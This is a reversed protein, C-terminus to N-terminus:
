EPPLPLGALALKLLTENPKVDPDRYFRKPQNKGALQEDIKAKQSKTPNLKILEPAGKSGRVTRIGM